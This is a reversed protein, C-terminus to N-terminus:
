CNIFRRQGFSSASQWTLFSGAVYVQLLFAVGLALTLMWDKRWLLVLGVLAVGLVPTWPVLGHEPSFLVNLFNPSTWTFKGSVVRSPEFRGTIVKYAILQPIFLVVAALGMMGMGPVWRRLIPVIVAVRAQLAAWSTMVAEVFPIALFLVDQKRVLMM